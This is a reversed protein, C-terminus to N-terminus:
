ISSNGGSNDLLNTHNLTKARWGFVAQYFAASRSVDNAPLEVYCIKGNTRTTM